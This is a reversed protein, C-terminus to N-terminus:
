LTTFTYERFYETTEGPELDIKCFVEPCFASPNSWFYFHCPSFEDKVIVATGTERNELRMTHSRLGQWGDIFAATSDTPADFAYPRLTQRGVALEGRRFRPQIQFPLTLCYSGDIPHGDFCFFNHSFEKAHIARSGVNRLTNRITLTNDKVSITKVQELAIGGSLIPDTHVTVTNEATEVSRPFPATVAYAKSFQFPMTDSKKVLGIGLMPFSDAIDAEDYLGPTDWEICSALGRGGMGTSGDAYHEGSLFTHKGDLTVQTVMSSWDYRSGCYDTGPTLFEATLRSSHLIIPANAM